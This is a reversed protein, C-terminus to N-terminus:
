LPFVEFKPPPPSIVVQVYRFLGSEMECIVGLARLEFWRVVVDEFGGGSFEKATNGLGERTVTVCAFVVAAHVNVIGNVTVAVQRAGDDLGSVM